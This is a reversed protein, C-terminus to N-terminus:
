KITQNYIIVIYHLFLYDLEEIVLNNTSVDVHYLATNETLDLNSLKNNRLNLSRLLSNNEACFSKLGNGSSDLYTIDGNITITHIGSSEYSHTFVVLENKMMKVTEHGDGWDIIVFGSAKIGLTASRAETTMRMTKMAIDTFNIVRNEIVCINYKVFNNVENSLLIDYVSQESLKYPLAYRFTQGYELVDILLNDGWEADGAPKIFLSLIDEGTM